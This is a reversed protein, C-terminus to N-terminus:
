LACLRSCCWFEAYIFLCTSEVYQKPDDWSWCKKDNSAFMNIM